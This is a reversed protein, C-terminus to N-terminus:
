GLFAGGNAHITQGTIYSAKQSCLFYVLNAVEQISGRRGILTANKSHHEPTSGAAADRTTDILGPVVCNVNIGMPSLDHALAHTLGVLGMKAAVVHARDKSGTHASMGGIFIIRGRTSKKLPALAAHSTLYAADLITGVVERWETFGLQDFPTRRRLAANNILIDIQGFTDLTHQILSQAGIETAVDAICTSVEGGAERIVKMLDQLDQSNSRGNIVVKAGSNALQIAIERGINRASGTIVAVTQAFDHNIFTM